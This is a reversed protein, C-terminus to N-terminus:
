VIRGNALGTSPLKMALEQLIEVRAAASKLSTTADSKLREALRANEGSSAEANNKRAGLLIKPMDGRERKKAGAADRRQKRELTTQTKRVIDAMKKQAHALDHHAAQLELEKQECYATWNGGYRTVGLSTLEVISDMYQLLQRDHSVVIAGAQWSGILQNVADRGDRDLNNTPEDLILFDPNHFIAAALAARTRQGGSLEALRTTPLANLSLRSLASAMREELTWDAIALDDVSATGQEARQLVELADRVDFLDAITDVSNLQVLQKLVGITGGVAVSGSQPALEGTILKILTSKGVGNRGVLGIRQRSLSLNLQTFLARGDPTAWGLQNIFINPMM